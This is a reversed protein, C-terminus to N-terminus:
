ALKIQIVCAEMFFELAQYFKCRLDSAGFNGKDIQKVLVGLPTYGPM